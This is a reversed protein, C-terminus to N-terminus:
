SEDVEVEWTKAKAGGFVMSKQLEKAEEAMILRAEDYWRQCTGQNVNLQQCTSTLKIGEVANWWALVAYSCGYGGPSM